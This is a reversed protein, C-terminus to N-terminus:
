LALIMGKEGAYTAMVPGMDNIIVENNYLSEIETKLRMADHLNDVHTIGLIKYAEPKLERILGSMEELFRKEGRVKKRVEVAGNVGQAIVKINLLKAIGGQIKTLRGGKVINELTFLPIIIKVNKRYRELEKVIADMDEGNKAMRAAKLVQVGHSLSGALSDFVKIENNMM